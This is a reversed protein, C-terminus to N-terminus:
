WSGDRHLLRLGERVRRVLEDFYGATGGLAAVVREGAGSGGLVYDTGNHNGGGGIGCNAYPGWPCTIVDTDYFPLTYVREVVAEAPKTEMLGVTLLLGILAAVAVRGLGWSSRAVAIM